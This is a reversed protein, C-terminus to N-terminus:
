NIKKVLSFAFEQWDTIANISKLLEELNEDEIYFLMSIIEPNYGQEIIRRYDSPEEIIEIGYTDNKSVMVEIFEPKIGENITNYIQVFETKKALEKSVRLVSSSYEGEQIFFPILWFSQSPLTLEINPCTQQNALIDIDSIIQKVIDDNRYDSLIVIEEIVLTKIEKKIEEDEEKETEVLWIIYGINDENLCILNIQANRSVI